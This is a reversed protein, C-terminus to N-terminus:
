ESVPSREVHSSVHLSIVYKSPVPNPVLVILSSSTGNRKTSSPSSLFHRHKRMMVSSV